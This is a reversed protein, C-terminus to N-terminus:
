VGNREILRGLFGRPRGSVNHASSISYSVDLKAQSGLNQLVEAFQDPTVTSQNQQGDASPNPNTPVHSQRDLAELDEWASDLIADLDLEEEM